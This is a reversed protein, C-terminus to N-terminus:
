KIKKLINWFGGTFKGKGLSPQIPSSAPLLKLFPDSMLFFISLIAISGLVISAVFLGVRSDEKLPRWIGLWSSHYNSSNRNRLEDVQEDRVHAVTEDNVLKEKADAQTQKKSRVLEPLNSMRDFVSNTIGTVRDSLERMKQTSTQIVSKAQEIQTRAAPIQLAYQETQDNIVRTSNQFNNKATAMQTNIDNAIQSNWLDAM